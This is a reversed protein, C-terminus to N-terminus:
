SLPIQRQVLKTRIAEIQAANNLFKTITRTGDKELDIEVPREYFKVSLKNDQREFKCFILVRPKLSNSIGFEKVVALEDTNLELIDHKAYFSQTNNLLPGMKNIFEHMLKYDFQNGALNFLIKLTKAAPIEERFPRRTTLADYVDCISVIKPPIPLNEYPMNYYGRNNFKEHHFLVTQLVIPHMEPITKLMEYGLQPHRKMKQIDSVNYKEEKNLLQKDIKMAGIDLLFAGIAFYRIDAHSYNGLLTAFVATLVGVNVSHSYLYEDHSRLDKLLQIAEIESSKLDKMIEEIIIETDRYSSRSFKQTKEVEEMIERSKNYAIKLRFPPIISKEGSDKYYLINGYKLRIEHIKRSTLVIREDLVREGDRSYLPYIFSRNPSLYDLNIEVRKIM